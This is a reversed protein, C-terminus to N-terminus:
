LVADLMMGEELGSSLAGRRTYTRASSHPVIHELLISLSAKEGAVYRAFGLSETKSLVLLRKLERFLTNLREKKERSFDATVAYFSKARGSKEAAIHILEERQKELEAFENSIGEIVSTDSAFAEWDRKQVSKLLRKQSDRLIGVMMLQENLVEELTSQLMEGTMEM